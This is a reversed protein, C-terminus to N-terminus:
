AEGVTTSAPLLRALAEALVAQHASIDSARMEDLMDWLSNNEDELYQITDLALAIARRVEPNPHTDALTELSKFPNTM